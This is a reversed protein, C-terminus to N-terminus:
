IEAVPSSTIRTWIEDGGGMVKRAVAMVSDGNRIKTGTTPQATLEIQLRAQGGVLVTDFALGPKYAIVDGSLAGGTPARFVQADVSSVSAASADTFLYVLLKRTTVNATAPSSSSSPVGSRTLYYSFKYTTNPAQGTVRIPYTIGTMSASQAMSYAGTVGGTVLARSIVLTDALPDISGVPTFDVEDSNVVTVTPALAPSIPAADSTDDPLYVDGSLTPYSVSVSPKIMLVSGVSPSDAAGGDPDTWTWADGAISGATPVLKYGAGGGIGGTAGATYTSEASETLPINALARYAVTALVEFRISDNDSATLNPLTVTTATGTTDISGGALFTSLQGDNIAIAWATGTGGGAWTIAM